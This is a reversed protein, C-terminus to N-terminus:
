IKSHEGKRPDILCVLPLFTGYRVKIEKPTCVDTDFMCIIITNGLYKWSYCLPKVSSITTQHAYMSDQAYYMYFWVFRDLHAWVEFFAILLSRGYLLCEVSWVPGALPWLSDGLSNGLFSGM